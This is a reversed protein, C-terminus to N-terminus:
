DYTITVKETRPHSQCVLIFGNARDEDSLAYDDDMEVEGDTLRAMCTACIGSMCSYSAQIGNEIAKNLITENGKMQITTSEGGVIITVESELNKAADKAKAKGKKSTDTAGNTSEVPATFYEVHINSSPVARSELAAQVERMMGDPGCIYYQPNRDAQANADMIDAVGIRDIRGAKADFGDQPTDLHHIVKFRDSHTAALNSITDKFMIEDVATNGYVLVVNSGPEQALVGKIISLMPTIGSGGAFLIYQGQKGETPTFVFRGAPPMVYLKAGAAMNDNLYNSVKGGEVRKVGITLDEGVNASCLSYSRREENGNIEVSFTLYQGADFAFQSKLDEPVNFSIATSRATLEEKKSVTLEYFGAPTKDKNKRKFLRM